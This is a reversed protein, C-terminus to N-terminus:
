CKKLCVQEKADEEKEDTTYIFPSPPSEPKSSLITLPVPAADCIGYHIAGCGIDYQKLSSADCNHISRHWRLDIKSNYYVTVRSYVYRICAHTKQM